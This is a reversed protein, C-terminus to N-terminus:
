SFAFSAALFTTMSYSTKGGIKDMFSATFELLKKGFESLINLLPSTSRQKSDFWHSLIM